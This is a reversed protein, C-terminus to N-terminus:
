VKIYLADGWGYQTINTIVRKFNYKELYDDIENIIACEKYVEETNVELYIAKAYEISLKAGKLAKLEAGQIDFNWFDYKAMNLNNRKYFSDITITSHYQKEVFYVDPHHTAHSGLQLISSSQGNNTINFEVIQSDKESIVGYYVNKINRQKAQEVKLKNGEIWIIDDDNIGLKTYFGSEECEHAGIHLVGKIEINNSKLTQIVENESILM